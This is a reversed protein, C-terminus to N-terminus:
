QVCSLKSRADIVNKNRSMEVLKKIVEIEPRHIPVFDDCFVCYYGIIIDDFITCPFLPIPELHENCYHIKEMVYREEIM